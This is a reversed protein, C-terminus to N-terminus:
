SNNEKRLEVYDTILSEFCEFVSDFVKELQSSVDVNNICIRKDWDVDVDYEMNSWDLHEADEESRTIAQELMAMVESLTFTPEKLEKDKNNIFNFIPSLDLLSKM